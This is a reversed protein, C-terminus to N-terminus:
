IQKVRPLKGDILEIVVANPVGDDDMGCSLAVYEKNYHPSWEDIYKFVSGFRLQQFSKEEWEGRKNLIAIRAVSKDNSLGFSLVLALSPIFARRNM